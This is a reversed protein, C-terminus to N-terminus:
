MHASKSAVPGTSCCIMKRMVGVDNPRAAPIMVSMAPNDENGRIGGRGGEIELQQGDARTIGLELPQSCIWEQSQTSALRERSMTPSLIHVRVSASFSLM